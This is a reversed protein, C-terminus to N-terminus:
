VTGKAAKNELYYLDNHFAGATPTDSDIHPENISQGRYVERQIIAEKDRSRNYFLFIYDFKIVLINIDFTTLFLDSKGAM